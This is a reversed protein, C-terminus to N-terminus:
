ELYKRKLKDDFREVAYRLMTRPMVHYHIDLFDTLSKQSCRKGVERLMWGVAKHILGHKDNLLIKAIKLTPEPKDNYIFAFTALIAIRREWLNQSRALKKLISWDKDLLYRGIVQPVTVDVLDWNNAAYLHFIYFDYLTKRDKESAKEFKYVIILLGIMREENWQSNLLKEVEDLSIQIYKKAITRCEPMTLGLFKDGEGYEGKGTKFFRSSAEARILNKKGRIESIM